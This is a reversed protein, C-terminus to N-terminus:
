PLKQRNQARLLVMRNRVEILINDKSVISWGKGVATKRFEDKPDVVFPNSVAELIPIDGSSDGFAFSDSSDIGAGSIQQVVKRKKDELAMNVKIQGTYQGNLVIGELLHLNKEEIGLIEALPIFAEMPAGSVVIIEGQKKMEEVLEQAFPMLGKQYQALFEKGASSVDDTSRSELGAYFHSVINEAFRNYDESAKPSKDYKAKDDLMMNLVDESLLEKELLFKAFPLITFGEEGAYLTNDIDFFVVTRNKQGQEPNNQREM